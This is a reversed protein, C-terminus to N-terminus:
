KIKSEVYVEYVKDIQDKSLGIFNEQNYLELTIETLSDSKRSAAMVEEWAQSKTQYKIYM